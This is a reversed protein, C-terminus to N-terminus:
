RSTELVQGTSQEEAVFFERKCLLEQMRLKPRHHSNTGNRYKQNKDKAEARRRLRRGRSFEVPSAVRKRERIVRDQIVAHVFCSAQGHMSLLFLCGKRMSTEGHAPSDHLKILERSERRVLRFNRGVLVAFADPM